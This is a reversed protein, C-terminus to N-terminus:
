CKKSQKRWPDEPPQQALFTNFNQPLKKQKSFFKCHFNAPLPLEELLFFTAMALLISVAPAAAPM